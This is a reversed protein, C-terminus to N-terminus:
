HTAKGDLVAGIRAAAESIPVGVVGTRELDAAEWAAATWDLTVSPLHTGPMGISVEYGNWIFHRAGRWHAKVMKPAGDRGIRAHPRVIHLIKERRGSANAVKDRDAFFYPARLMDIAFTAVGEGKRVRVNLGAESSIAGNCVLGVLWAAYEDVSEKVERKANYEQRMTELFQPYSWEMRVVERRSTGGNKRSSKGVMYRHPSIEKLVKVVGEPSVAVHFTFLHPKKLGFVGGVSYIVGNTAQVNVPQNHKQFYVFRPSVEDKSDHRGFYACGISPMRTYFVPEIDVALLQDGDLVACGLKEIAAAIEPNGRKLFAFDAFYGDLQDLLDGLYYHAQTRDPKATRHRPAAAKLPPTDDQVTPADMTPARRVSSLLWRIFVKIKNM